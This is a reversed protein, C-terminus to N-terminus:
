KVEGGHLRDLALNLELVNVCPEGLIGWLRGKTYQAVLVKVANQSLGRAKAVRAAQYNAAAPSIHPDLGSGSATVLDVPISATNDADAAKLADIRGQVAKILDPNAAGLNSGSSSSANYTPTTASLRGWFYKPDSFNQGILKSGVTKDGQTILSGEAQHPFFTQALVTVIGPYIAGCLLTFLVFFVLSIRLSTLM